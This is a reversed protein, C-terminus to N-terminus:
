RFLFIFGGNTRRDIVSNTDDDSDSAASKPDGDCGGNIDGVGCGDFETSQELTMRDSMRYIKRQLTWKEIELRKHHASLKEIYEIAVERDAPPLGEIFACPVRLASKFHHLSMEPRDAPTNPVDEEITENDSIVPMSEGCHLESDMCAGDDSSREKETEPSKKRM